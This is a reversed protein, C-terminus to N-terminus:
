LEPELMLETLPVGLPPVDWGNRRMHEVFDGPLAVHYRQVYYPLDRPWAWDGDTMVHPSGILPGDPSFVDRVVGPTAILLHGGSLYSIIKTEDTHAEGSRSDTISPGGPMGHDLERFFGVPRLRKM